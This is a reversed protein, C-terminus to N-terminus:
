EEDQFEYDFFEDTLDDKVGQLIGDDELPEAEVEYDGFATIDAEYFSKYARNAILKTEALNFGGSIVGGVGPVLKGLNVIGTQGFKTVFRFGVARNIKTLVEGPVKKIMAEAFKMSFKIGADALAKDISVGALCAYIFTKTQDSDLEYGSMYATAAVMRLQVYLVSGIDASVAVPLTIAGGLGTMVGTVTCKTVQNRLMKKIAINTDSYRKTYDYALESVPKSVKPIGNVVQNYLSDLLTMTREETMAGM